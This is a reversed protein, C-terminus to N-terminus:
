MKKQNKARTHRLILKRILLKVLKTENENHQVRKSIKLTVCGGFFMAGLTYNNVVVDGMTIVSM